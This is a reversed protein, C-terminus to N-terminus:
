ERQKGDGGVFQCFDDGSDYIDLSGHMLVLYCPAYRRQPAELADSTADISSHMCRHLCCLPCSSDGPAPREDTRGCRSCTWYAVSGVNLRLTQPLGFMERGFLNTTCQDCNGFNMM